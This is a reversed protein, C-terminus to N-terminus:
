NTEDGCKCNIVTGNPLCKYTKTEDYENPKSSKTEQEMDEESFESMIIGANTLYEYYKTICYNSVIGTLIFVPISSIILIIDQSM